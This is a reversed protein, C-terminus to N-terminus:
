SSKIVAQFVERPIFTSGGTYCGKSFAVVKMVPAIGGRAKSDAQFVVVEDIGAAHMQDTDQGLAKFLEDYAAGYLDAVASIQVDPVDAVVNEQLEVQYQHPTICAEDAMAMPASVFMLAGILALMKRSLMAKFM